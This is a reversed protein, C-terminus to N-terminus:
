TLKTQARSALQNLLAQQMVDIPAPQGVWFELAIAGQHLLMDLGDIAKLGRAAALQLFQTPRPTYILDYAIASDPLLAMDEKSIPTNPDEAMGIPTANVVLGAIELLNPLSSWTHVRLNYDKLQSTMQGHFRKMKKSDRGVIHIAPCGLQLCGAIVARAAGGSGLIVAPIKNWNLSLAKLPALFGAVDTNTGIWEDELRKVTNVAGVSQAIEDVRDLLPMIEQKHPITLNFGQLASIAKLGSVAITLDAIAVPLPIYVYDLKMVTLAANHMVPSLSHTVPCGMVGLIKTTGLVQGM